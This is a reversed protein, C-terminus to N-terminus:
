EAIKEAEEPLMIPVEDRIPYALHDYRCILVSKEKDYVLKGKCIPCALIALLRKDM